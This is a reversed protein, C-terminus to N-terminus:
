YAKVKCMELMHSVIKLFSHGQQKILLTKDKIRKQIHKGCWGPKLIDLLAIQVPPTISIVRFYLLALGTVPRLPRYSQSIDLIGFKRPMQGM